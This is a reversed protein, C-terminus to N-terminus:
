GATAVLRGCWGRSNGVSSIAVADISLECLRKLSVLIGIHDGMLRANSVRLRGTQEKKVLSAIRSSARVAFCLFCQMHQYVVEVKCLGTHHCRRVKQEKLLEM